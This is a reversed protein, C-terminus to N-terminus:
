RWEFGLGWFSIHTEQHEEGKLFIANGWGLFTNQRVDTGHFERLGATTRWSSSAMSRQRPCMASMPPWSDVGKEFCGLRFFEEREITKLPKKKLCQSKTPHHLLIIKQHLTLLSYIIPYQGHWSSRSNTWCRYANYMYIYVYVYLVQKIYTWTLDEYNTKTPWVLHGKWVFVQELLGGNLVMMLFYIFRKKEDKAAVQVGLEQWLCHLKWDDWEIWTQGEIRLPAQSFKGSFFIPDNPNNWTTLRISPGFIVLQHNFWGM